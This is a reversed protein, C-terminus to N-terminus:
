TGGSKQCLSQTNLSIWRENEDRLTKIFPRCDKCVVKLALSCYENALVWQDPRSTGYTIDRAKSKVEICFESHGINSAIGPALWNQTKRRSPLGLSYKTALAQMGTVASLAHIFSFFVQTVQAMLKKLIHDRVLTKWKILM